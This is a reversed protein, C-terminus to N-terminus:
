SWLPSPLNSFSLQGSLLGGLLILSQIGPQLAKMASPLYCIEEGKKEGATVAWSRQLSGRLGRLTGAGQLCPGSRGNVEPGGHRTLAQCATQSKLFCQRLLSVLTSAMIREETEGSPEAQMQSFTFPSIQISQKISPSPKVGQTKAIRVLMRLRIRVRFTSIPPSRITWLLNPPAPLIALNTGKGLALFFM